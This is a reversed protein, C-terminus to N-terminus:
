LATERKYQGLALALPLLVGAYFLTYDFVNMFLVPIVVGLATWTGRSWAWCVLGFSFWLIALLGPSGYLTAFELWLNHAHRVTEATNDPAISEWADVFGGEGVGYVPHALFIQWSLRWITPRAVTNSDELGSVSFRNSTGTGGFGLTLTIGALLLIVPFLHKKPRLVLLFLIGVTAALWAARSGSLSVGFLTIVGGLLKAWAGSVGSVFALGTTAVSHGLLNAHGFWLKSRPPYALSNLQHYSELTLGRIDLASAGELRLKLRLTSIDQLTKGSFTFSYPQWTESPLFSYAPHFVPAVSPIDLSLNVGAPELPELAQWSSTLEELKVHRVDYREVPLRLELRIISSAARAPVTWTLNTITWAPGLSVPQCAKTDGGVERLIVGTCGSTTLPKSARLELSARFTRGALRQGTNIRRTIYSGGGAPPYVRTYPENAEALSELRFGPDYKFWQWGPQGSSRRAEFSVTVGDELATNELNLSWYKNWVTLQDGPSTLRQTRNLGALLTTTLPTDVQPSYWSRAAGWKEGSSAVILILIGALLGWSPRKSTSFVLFALFTVCTQALLTQFPRQLVVQIFLLVPLALWIYLWDLRFNRRVKLRQLLFIAAGVPAVVTLFFDAIYRWLSQSNTSNEPEFSM